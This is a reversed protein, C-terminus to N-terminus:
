LYYIYTCGNIDSHWKSHESLFPFWKNDREPCWWTLDNEQEGTKPNYWISYAKYKM